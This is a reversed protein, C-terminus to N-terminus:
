LFGDGFIKASDQGRLNEWLGAPEGKGWTEMTAKPLTMQLLCVFHRYCYSGPSPSEHAQLTTQFSSLSPFSVHSLLSSLSPLCPPCPSLRRPFSLRQPQEMIPSSPSQFVILFSQFPALSQPPLFLWDGYPFCFPSFHGFATLCCQVWFGQTLSCISPLLHWIHSSTLPGPHLTLHARKCVDRGKRQPGSTM